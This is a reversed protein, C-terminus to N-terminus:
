DEMGDVQEVMADLNEVHEALLWPAPSPTNRHSGRPTKEGDGWLHWADGNLHLAYLRSYLDAAKEVLDPDATGAMLNVLGDQAGRLRDLDTDGLAPKGNGTTNVVGRAGCTGCAWTGANGVDTLGCEPCREESMTRGKRACRSACPTAATTNRMMLRWQESMPGDCPEIRVGRCDHAEDKGM